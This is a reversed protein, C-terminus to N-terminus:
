RCASVGVVEFHVHAAVEYGGGGLTELKDGIIICSVCAAPVDVHATYINGDATHLGEVVRCAGGKGCSSGGLAYRHVLKGVVCRVFADLYYGLYVYVSLPLCETCTHHEVGVRVGDGYVRLAAQALRQCMACVGQAYVSFIYTRAHHAVVEVSGDHHHLAAVVGRYHAHAPVGLLQLALSFEILVDLHVIGHICGVRVLRLGHHPIVSRLLGGGHGVPSLGVREGLLHLLAHM